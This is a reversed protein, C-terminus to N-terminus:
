SSSIPPVSSISNEENAPVTTFVYPYCTLTGLANAEGPPQQALAANVIEVPTKQRVGSRSIVKVYSEPFLTLSTYFHFLQEEREGEEFIAM